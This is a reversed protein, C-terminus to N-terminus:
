NRERGGDPEFALLNLMTVPGDGDNGARQAFAAFGDPNPREPLDQEDIASM